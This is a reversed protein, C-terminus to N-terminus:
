GLRRRALAARAVQLYDGRQDRQTISMNDGHVRRRVGLEPLTQEVAGRARMRMVVDIFAGLRIAPDFGGADRLAVLRVCAGSTIYGTQVGDRVQWRLAAAGEAFETYGGFLLDASSQRLARAVRAVHGPLLLDDADLFMVFPTRVVECGHNLAASQGRSASWRLVQVGDGYGALVAGTGDDSGDDVIVHGAVGQGRVSEVAQAIFGAGNRVATVVTIDAPTIDAGTM